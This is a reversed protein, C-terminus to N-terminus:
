SRALYAALDIRLASGVRVHPLVGRACLRYITEPHMCLRAAAEKPSVFDHLVLAAFQGHNAPRPSVNPSTGSNAVGRIPVSRSAEPEEPLGRGGVEFGRAAPEVGALRAL